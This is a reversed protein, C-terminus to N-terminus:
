KKQMGSQFLMQNLSDRDWLLVGTAEAAEKAGQTFYRNTMVAGIQCHYITKGANVEQVPKNGLDKSYCKCQVAYKIGDKQALIDVGQDGSGRTVEVNSFGNERLLNACWHEFEHGEMNDIDSLNDKVFISNSSNNASSVEVHEQSIKINGRMRLWQNKTILIQRPASGRFPGVIGKDEMEDIISAARTYGLRLRRQIMSVSSQGTEMIVDVALPFLEDSVSMSTINCLGLSEEKIENVVTNSEHLHNAPIQYPHNSTSKEILYKESESLNEYRKRDKSKKIAALIARVLKKRFTILATIIFAIGFGTTAYWDPAQLVNNEDVTFNGSLIIHYVLFVGIFIGLMKIVGNKSSTTLGSKGHKRDYARKFKSGCYVSLCVPVILLFLAYVIPVTAQDGPWIMAAIVGMIMVFIIWSCVAVIITLIWGSVKKVGDRGIEIINYIIGRYQSYRM